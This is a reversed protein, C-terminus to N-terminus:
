SQRGLRRIADRALDDHTKSLQTAREYAKQIEMLRTMEVIPQVNSGELAGQVVSTDVAAVADPAQGQPAVLLGGGLREYSQIAPLDFVGIQSLPV